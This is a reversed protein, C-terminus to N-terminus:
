ESAIVESSMSVTKGVTRLLKAFDVGQLGSRDVPEYQVRDAEALAEYIDFKPAFLFLRAGTEYIRNIVEDVDRPQGPQVTSAHMERHCTADTFIVICKNCPHRWESKLATFIADLTSEPEDGGGSASLRAVDRRFAEIDTTFGYEAIAEGVNLDRYEILRARWDLKIDLYSEFGQVLAQVHTKVGDICPQMSGTCDICVVVDAVGKPRLRQPAGLQGVDISDEM